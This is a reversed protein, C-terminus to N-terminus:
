GTRLGRTLQRPPRRADDTGARDPTAPPEGRDPAAASQLFTLGAAPRFADALLEAEDEQSKHHLYRMTTKADAHGMWAQVQVISARNIALSGFTHRLDHFRL